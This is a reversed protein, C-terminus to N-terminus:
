QEGPKRSEEWAVNIDMGELVLKVATDYKPDSKPAM